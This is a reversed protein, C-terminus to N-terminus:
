ERMRLLLKQTHAPNTHLWTRPDDVDQWLSFFVSTTKFIENRTTPQHVASCQRVFLLAIVCIFVGCWRLYRYTDRACLYLQSHAVDFAVSPRVPRASAGPWNLNLNLNLYDTYKFFGFPIIVFYYLNFM